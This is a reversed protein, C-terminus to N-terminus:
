LLPMLGIFHLNIGVVKMVRPVLCAVVATLEAM